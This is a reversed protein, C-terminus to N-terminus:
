EYDDAWKGYILSIDTGSVNITIPRERNNAIDSEYRIMNREWIRYHYRAEDLGFFGVFARCLPSCVLETEVKDSKKYCVPCKRFTLM